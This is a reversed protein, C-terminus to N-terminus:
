IGAIAVGAKSPTGVNATDFAADYTINYLLPTTINLYPDDYLLYQGTQWFPDTTFTVVQTTVASIFL